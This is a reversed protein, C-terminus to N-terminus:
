LLPLLEKKVCCLFFLFLLVLSSLYALFNYSCIGHNKKLNYSESSCYVESNNAAFIITYAINLNVSGGLKQMKIPLAINILYNKTQVYKIYM